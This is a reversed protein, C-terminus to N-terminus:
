KLWYPRRFVSPRQRDLRYFYCLVREVSRNVPQTIVERRPGVYHLPRIAFDIVIGVEAGEYQEGELEGESRVPYPHFM